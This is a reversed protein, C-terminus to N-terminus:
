RWHRKGGETPVLYTAHEDLREKPYSVSMGSPALAAPVGEVTREM